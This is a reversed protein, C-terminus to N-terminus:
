RSIFGGPHRSLRGALEMELLVANVLPAPLRLERILADVAVPTSSLGHEVREHIVAITGDDPESPIAAPPDSFGTAPGFPLGVANSPPLDQLVDDVIQILTAGDRILDNCGAGRVDMPASPAAFVSRGQEAARRATILSGSKRKAEIVVVALSLGSIIRNRRPFHRALPQMGPPMESIVAGKEILSRYLGDNEPPFVIDVGGALVAITGTELSGEHSATDIGRAMGSAIAYGARGIDAALKRAFGKGAVSANRGGVMGICDRGVLDPNGLLYFFPPADDIAALPLPYGAAGFHLDRAGLKEAAEREQDVVDAAAIRLAKARGGRRALDPLALLAEQGSGFRRLLQRFTVPGVNETRALRFRAHREQETLPSPTKTAADSM